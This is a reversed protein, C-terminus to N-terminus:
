FPPSAPNTSVAQCCEMFAPPNELNFLCWLRNPFSLYRYLRADCLVTPMAEPLLPHVIDSCPKDLKLPLWSCLCQSTLSRRPHNHITALNIGGPTVLSIHQYPFLLNVLSVNRWIRMNKKGETHKDGTQLPKHLSGKCNTTTCTITPQRTKSKRNTQM